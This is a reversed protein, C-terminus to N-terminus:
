GLIIHSRCDEPPGYEAPLCMELPLLGYPAIGVRRVLFVKSKSEAPSLVRNLPAQQVVPGPIQQKPLPLPWSQIDMFPYEFVEVTLAAIIMKGAAADAEQEASLAYVIPKGYLIPLIYAQGTLYSSDYDDLVYRRQGMDKLWHSLTLNSGALRVHDAHHMRTFFPLPSVLRRDCGPLVGDETAFAHEFGTAPLEHSSHILEMPMHDFCPNLLVHSGSPFGFFTVASIRSLWTWSPAFPPGKENLRRMPRKIPQGWARSRECVWLLSQAFATVPLAQHIELNFRRRLVLMLGQFANQTDSQFSLERRTYNQVMDKFVSFASDDGKDRDYLSLATLPEEKYDQQPDHYDNGIDLDVAECGISSGSQLFVQDKTIVLCRASLTAEQFVWGRSNWKSQHVAQRLPPPCIGITIGSIGLWSQDRQADKVGPLADHVGGDAAAVICLHCGMYVHAMDAIANQKEVGQNQAICLSDVWLFPIGLQQCAHLVDQITTPLDSTACPVSDKAQNRDHVQQIDRCWKESTRAAGWVYSLAAYCVNELSRVHVIRSRAVDMLMFTESNPKGLETIVQTNSFKDSSADELWGSVKKWDITPEYTRWIGKPCDFLCITRLDRRYDAFLSDTSDPPQLHEHPAVLVCLENPTTFYDYWMLKDAPYLPFLYCSYHKPSARVVTPTFAPDDSTGHSQMTDQGIIRWLRDDLLLSCLDCPSAREKLEAVTGLPHAFPSRYLPTFLQEELFARVAQRNKSGEYQISDLFEELLIHEQEYDIDRDELFGERQRGLVNREDVFVDDDEELETVLPLFRAFECFDNFFSNHFDIVSCRQCLRASSM